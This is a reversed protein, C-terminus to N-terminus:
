PVRSGTILALLKRREEADRRRDEILEDIRREAREARSNAIALQERLAQVARVHVLVDPHV